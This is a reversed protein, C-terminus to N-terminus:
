KYTHVHLFRLKFTVDRSVKRMKDGTRKNEELALRMATAINCDCGPSLRLTM